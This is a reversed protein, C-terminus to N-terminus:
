KNKENDDQDYRITKQLYECDLVRNKEKEEKKETNLERGKKKRCFSGKFVIIIKSSFVINLLIM